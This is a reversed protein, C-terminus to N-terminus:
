LDIKTRWGVFRPFRPKDKQGHPFHRCKAIRGIVGSQNGWIAKREAHKMVGCGVEIVEGHWEVLIKGLTAAPVLGEKSTSRKAGGVNNRIDENTNHYQEELGVVVAEFDEFRKLKYILGERFTGRGHKYRGYPDRMMIGEYGLLLQAAEYELLEDLDSVLTHEVFHLRSDSANEAVMEKVMELRDRFPVDCLILNANDFVYYRPDDPVKEESMVASQTRNYVDVDTPEGEIFEGDFDDYKGFYKQFHCNPLEILTRSWAVGTNCVARIGDLKPSCLLPFKLCSFFNPDKMPDNNPALMPKFM